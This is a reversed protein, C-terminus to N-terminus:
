RSSSGAEIVPGTRHALVLLKENRPGL